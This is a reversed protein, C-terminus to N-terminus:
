KEPQLQILMACVIWLAISGLGPWAQFVAYIDLELCNIHLIYVCLYIYVCVGLLESVSGTHDNWERSSYVCTCFCKSVQRFDRLWFAVRAAPIPVGTTHNWSQRRM